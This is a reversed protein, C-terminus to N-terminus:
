EIIYNMPNQNKSMYIVEYHLHPATSRGTSGVYGIVQGRKVRAGEKVAFSALHGYRTSFGFGHDICILNGLAGSNETLLVYGDASAYVKNGLQTAIDLGNHLSWTGTIPHHRMGFVDTIYGRTPWLSPTAALRAKQGNIQNEVYHLADEVDKANQTIDRSKAILEEGFQKKSPVVLKGPQLEITSGINGVSSYENADESEPGGRGVEQLAYPSKLGAAVMIREKFDEMRKLRELLSEFNATLQVITQEKEGNEKELRKLKEKDFSVTLYDFIVFGFILLLVSIAIISKRILKASVTFEKSSSTAGTMVIISYTKNKMIKNLVKNQM